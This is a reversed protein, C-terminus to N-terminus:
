SVLQWRATGAPLKALPLDAGSRLVDRIDGFVFHSVVDKSATKASLAAAETSDRQGCILCVADRTGEAGTVIEPDVLCNGCVFRIKETM